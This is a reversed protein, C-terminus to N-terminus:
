DYSIDYISIEANKHALKVNETVRKFVFEKQDLMAFFSQAIPRDPESLYISGGPKLLSKFAQVLPAFLDSEYAVDAALIVDFQQKLSINRWDLLTIKARERFNVIWNLEAMLLADPELDSLRVDAGQGRAAIGALGLGCGLEICKKGKLFDCRSLYQALALSAPWLEAWYPSSENPKGPKQIAENLVDDLNTIKYLLYEDGGLSYKVQQLHYKRSLIQWLRDFRVAINDSVPFTSDDM